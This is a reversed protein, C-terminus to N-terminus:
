GQGMRQMLLERSLTEGSIPQLSLEIYANPWVEMLFQTLVDRKYNHCISAFADKLIPYSLAYNMNFTELLVTHHYDRHDGTMVSASLMESLKSISSSAMWCSPHHDALLLGRKWEDTGHVSAPTTTAEARFWWGGNQSPCWIRIQCSAVAMSVSKLQQWNRAREIVSAVKSTPRHSILLQGTCYQYFCVPWLDYWIAPFIPPGLIQHNRM